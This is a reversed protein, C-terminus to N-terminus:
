AQVLPLQPDDTEIRIDGRERWFWFSCCGKEERSDWFLPVAFDGQRVWLHGSWRRPCNSEILVHNWKNEREVRYRLQPRYARNEIHIPYPERFSGLNTGNRGIAEFRLAYDGYLPLPRSRDSLKTRSFEVLYLDPSIAAGSLPDKGTLIVRVADVGPTSGRWTTSMDLIGGDATCAFSKFATALSRMMEDM